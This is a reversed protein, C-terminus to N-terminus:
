DKKDIFLKTIFKAFPNLLMVNRLLYVIVLLVIICGATCVYALAPNLILKFLEAVALALVILIVFGFMMCIAGFVMASMFITFKEAVTLKAYEIELEVWAKSQALIDKIEEILKQKM